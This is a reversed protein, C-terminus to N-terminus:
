PIRTPLSSSGERQRLRTNRASRLVASDLGDRKANEVVSNRELSPIAFLMMEYGRETVFFVDVARIHQNELVISGSCGMASSSRISPDMVPCFTNPISACKDSCTFEGHHCDSFAARRGNSCLCYGSSHSPITETCSRDDSRNRRGYPSCGM